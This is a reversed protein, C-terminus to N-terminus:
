VVKVIKDREPKMAVLTFAGITKVRENMLM